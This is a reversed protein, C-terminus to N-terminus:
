VEALSVEALTDEALAEDGLEAAVVGVVAAEEEIEAALEEAVLTGVVAGTV